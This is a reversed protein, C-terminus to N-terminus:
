LGRSRCQTKATRHLNGKKKERETNKKNTKKKLGIIIKRCKNRLWVARPKLQPKIEV